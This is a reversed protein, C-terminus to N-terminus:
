RGGFNSKIFQKIINIDAKDLLAGILLHPISMQPLNVTTLVFDIESSKYNSIENSSIVDVINFLPFNNEVRTKLFHSSGIGTSCVILINFIRTSKEIANQFYLAIYAIEDDSLPEIDFKQHISASVDALIKFTTAFHKKVEETLPNVIVVHYTVRNLMPQTHQVLSKILIDDESFCIALKNEMEGVLDTVYANVFDNSIIEVNGLPEIFDIEDIRRTSILFAYVYGIEAKDICLDFEAAMEQIIFAAIDYKKQNVVEQNFAVKTSTGVPNDTRNRLILLHTLLNIYYPNEIQYGLRTHACDLIGKIKLVSDEDFEKSLFKISDQNMHVTQQFPTDSNTILKNLLHMLEKRIDKEEGHIATGLNNRKIILHSGKLRDEIIELDNVISSQSVFFQSSFKSITYPKPASILLHYLISLRRGEVSLAAEDDVYFRNVISVYQKLNLKFGRTRDSEIIEEGLDERIQKIRRYITKTSVKFHKSLEKGLVFDGHEILYDILKQNVNTISM